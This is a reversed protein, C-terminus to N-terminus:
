KVIYERKTIRRSSENTYSLSIHAKLLNLM